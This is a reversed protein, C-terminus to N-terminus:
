PFPWANALCPAAKISQQQMVPAVQGAGPCGVHEHGLLHGVEHNVVYQRYQMHDPFEDTAQVWRTYNIAAHGNRGCSYEGGTNLPACMADVKAPSALVVRIDAVGDTRAFSMSGDGGWGRPDNLAEMVTRAFAAPEVDLGAEVEVRVTRVRRDPAPAPESGPVVVLDGSASDPVAASLLGAAHDALSLGAADPVDLDVPAPAAPVAWPPPTLLAERTGSRAVAVDDPRSVAELAPRSWPSTSTLAAGSVLGAAAAVAGAVLLTAPGFRGPLM